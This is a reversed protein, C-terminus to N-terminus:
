SLHKKEPSVNPREKPKYRAKLVAGAIIRTLLTENTDSRIQKLKEDSFFSQSSSTTQPQKEEEESM